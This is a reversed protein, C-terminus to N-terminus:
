AFDFLLAEAPADATMTFLGADESSVGDGVALPTGNVRISGAAVQLWLGHGAPLQHSASQGEGLRLRYIDVDQHITASGEHGDPSIILVKPSETHEPSPHWETYSPSLGRERPHIWVQLFHTPEDSSPNFESHRVGSGASMLQVQGPSLTRGNGLSDEHQLQGELMYSFIEMDRHPHLGFGRGAAVRDDNIVRLTRFGMQAPDHYDAFSFTHRSDLWGHDAHGREGALRISLAPTSTKM